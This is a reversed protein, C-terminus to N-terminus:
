VGIRPGRMPERREADLRPRHEDARQGRAACGAGLLKPLRTLEREPCGGQGSRARVSPSFGAVHTRMENCRAHAPRFNGIRNENGHDGGAGSPVIDDITM